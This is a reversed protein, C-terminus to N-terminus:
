SNLKHTSAASVLKLGQTQSWLDTKVARVVVVFVVVVVVVVVVAGFCFCFVLCLLVFVFFAALSCVRSAPKDSCLQVNNCCIIAGEKQPQLRFTFSDSCLQSQQM